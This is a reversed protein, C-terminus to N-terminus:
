VTITGQIEVKHIAGSYRADFTVDTLVRAARDLPDTDEILLDPISFEALLNDGGTFNNLSARLQNVVQDIGGQTFPVKDENILLTFIRVQIDNTLADTGRIIDIYEGSVVKGDCMLDIGATTTYINTNKALLDNRETSNLDDASVSSLSKFKWTVTGPDKPAVKGVWAAEAYEDLKSTERWVLVTRDRNSAKLLAAISTTDTANPLDKSAAEDTQTFYIKIDAEVASSLIEITQASRETALLFYWNDDTNKIRALESGPGVNAIATTLVMNDPGPNSTLTISFGLGASDSTLDLSDGAGPAATVPESGANVASVLGDRIEAATNSSAAFAFPVGNITIEYIGDTVGGVLVNNVQAVDAERKAVKINVPRPNQSFMATAMKVAEDTSTFGADLMGQIESFVDVDGATQVTNIDMILATGFGLRTPLKTQRDIQVQVIDSLAM